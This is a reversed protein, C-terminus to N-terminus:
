QEVVKSIMKYYINIVLAIRLSKWKLSYMLNIEPKTSTNQTSETAM